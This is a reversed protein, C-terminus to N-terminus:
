PDERYDSWQILKTWDPHESVTIQELTEVHARLVRLRQRLNAEDRAQQQIKGVLAWASLALSVTAAAVGIWSVATVRKTM